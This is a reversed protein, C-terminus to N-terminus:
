GFFDLPGSRLRLVIVWLTIATQCLISSGVGGGGGGFFFVGFVLYTVM